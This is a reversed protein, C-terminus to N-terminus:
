AYRRLLERRSLWITRAQWHRGRLRRGLPHDRVLLRRQYWGVCRLRWDTRQACVEFGLREAKKWFLTTSRFSQLAGDHPWCAERGGTAGEALLESLTLCRYGRERLLGLIAPLAALMTCTSYQGHICGRLSTASFRRQVFSLYGAKLGCRGCYQHSDSVPAIASRKGTSGDGRRGFSDPPQGLITSLVQAGREILSPASASARCPGQRPSNEELPVRLVM